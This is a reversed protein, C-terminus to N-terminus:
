KRALARKVRWVSALMQVGMIMFTTTNGPVHHWEIPYEQIGYGHRKVRSLLDIDFAWGSEVAEPLIEDLVEKRFIKAGCQTDRANLGFLVHVFLKNLIRSALRRMWSQKPNVVAGKLWRSGIVCGNEGLNELLLNFSEPPTAGDADVFGVMEGSASRMGLEVAGGKGIRSPESILRIQPRTEMAAKVVAETDDSCHNAVVILEYDVGFGKTFYSCYSELTRPIRLEENYAPIVISLKM